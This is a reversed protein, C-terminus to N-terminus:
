KGKAAKKKNNSSSSVQNGDVDINLESYDATKRSRRSPRASSTEVAIDEFEDSDSDNGGKKKGKKGKAAKKKNNSTKKKKKKPADEEDSSDEEDKYSSSSNSNRRMQNAFWAKTSKPKFGECDKDKSLQRTEEASAIAMVELGYGWSMHFETDTESCAYSLLGIVGKYCSLRPPLKVVLRKVKRQVILVLIQLVEEIMEFRQKFVSVLAYDKDDKRLGIGVSKNRCYAIHYAIQDTPHEHGNATFTIGDWPPTGRGWFLNSRNDGPNGGSSTTVRCGDGTTLTCKEIITQFITKSTEEMVKPNMPADMLKDKVLAKVESPVEVENLLKTGNLDSRRLFGDWEGNEIEQKITAARSVIKDQVKTDEPDMTVREGKAADKATAKKNREMKSEYAADYKQVRDFLCKGSGWEYLALVLVGNEDLEELMDGQKQPNRSLRQLDKMVTALGKEYKEVASKMRPIIEILRDYVTNSGDTRVGVSVRHGTLVFPTVMVGGIEADIQECSTMLNGLQCVNKQKIDDETDNGHDSTRTLPVVLIQAFPHTGFLEYIITYRTDVGVEPKMAMTGDDEDEKNQKMLKWIGNMKDQDDISDDQLLKIAAKREEKYKEGFYVKVKDVTEEEPWQVCDNHMGSLAHIGVQVGEKNEMSDRIRAVCKEYDTIQGITSSKYTDNEILPYVNISIITFNTGRSDDNIIFYPVLEVRDKSSIGYQKKFSTQKIIALLKRCEIEDGCVLDNTDIYSSEITHIIRAILPPRDEPTKGTKYVKALQLLKENANANTNTDDDSVERNLSM